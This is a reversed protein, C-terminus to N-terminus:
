VCAACASQKAPEEPAEFRWEGQVAHETIETFGLNKLKDSTEKDKTKITGNKM